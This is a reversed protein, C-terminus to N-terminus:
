KLKDYNKRVINSFKILAEKMGTKTDSVGVWNDGYLQYNISKYEKENNKYEYDTSNICLLGFLVNQAKWDNIVRILSTKSSLYLSDTINLFFIKKNTQLKVDKLITDYSKADNQSMQCLRNGLKYPNKDKPTIYKVINEGHGYIYLDIGEYNKMAEYFICALKSAVNRASYESNQPFNMSGSEDISIVFAYKPDPSESKKMVKRHYVCNVGQIAQVLHSSILQGNRHFKDDELEIKKNNPIIIKKAIKIEETLKSVMKKYAVADSSNPKVAGIEKTAGKFLENPKNDPKGLTDNEQNVSEKAKNFKQSIANKSKTRGESTNPSFLGNQGCNKEQNPNGETSSNGIMGLNPKALKSNLDDLKVYKKIIEITDLCAVVTNKTPSYKFQSPDELKVIVKEYIEDLMPGFEDIWEKPFRKSLSSNRVMYLVMFQVTDIKSNSLVLKKMSNIFKDESFYHELVNNLFYMWQPKRIGLMEEICEDEYVNHLWHAIPYKVMKLDYNKFDTFACHCAEHCALGMEIDMGVYADKHEKMPNMGVVIHKGDTYSSDSNEKAVLQASNETVQNSVYLLAQSMLAASTKYAEIEMEKYIFKSSPSIGFKNTTYTPRSSFWNTHKLTYAM